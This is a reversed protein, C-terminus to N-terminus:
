RIRCCNDLEEILKKDPRTFFVGNGKPYKSNIGRLFLYYVGGLHLDYNYDAMRSNLYRHLAITYILYQLDYRHEDMATELHQQTYDEATTGLFNSKYDAIFFRNRHFFILDIFGKMMGEITHVQTTMPAIDFRSLTANFKNIDLTELPFLFSLEDLRETTTLQSLSCSGPLQVQCTENIWQSTTETWDSDIGYRILMTNICEQWSTPSQSFDILELISHLCTGATAGKPFTFPNKGEIEVPLAKTIDTTNTSPGDYKHALQSYSTILTGSKITGNFSAARLENQPTQYIVPSIATSERPHKKITIMKESTNFRKLMATIDDDSKIQYPTPHHLFRNLASHEIDKINGWCFYCCCRARTLAVYLLRVAEAKEEQEMKTLNENDTADFDAIAAFTSRDHFIIPPETNTKRGNWIFPLFVVPYELGKSKHITAIKVLQEDNELRLQENEMEPDPTNIQQELWRTLPARGNNNAPSNNLLEALHMYNTCKREGSQQATLRQILDERVFLTQLMVMIGKEQWLHRYEQLSELYRDWKLSDSRTSAINTGNLGFLDSALATSCSTTNKLNLLTQLFQLLQTAENTTFVSNRNHYVSTIGQKRLAKQMTEAEFHTRVLITIDGAQLLDEGIFAKGQTAYSLLQSIELACAEAAHPEATTKSIKKQRANAPNNEILLVNFPLTTTGEVTLSPKEKTQDPKVPHFSIDPEFLFGNPLSFLKNVAAVMPASSRYNTDMTHLSDVPTKRRAQIYTFIDAGRFSYIAQKPDGIMFLSAAQDNYITSFIDYQLPDTDQFEDVLAAPYQHSIRTVLKKGTTKQHLADALYTLLDDFYLQSQASKRQALEKTLYGGADQVIKIQLFRIYNQHTTYFQEFQQFFTHEPGTTCKKLRLSDLISQQLLAMKKPLLYPMKKQAGLSHMASILEPITETKHYGDKKSRKLCKDTMLIEEIEEAHLSWLSCVQKWLVDAQQELENLDSTHIEPQISIKQISLISALSQLLNQPDSWLSRIWQVKERPFSYFTSRWFDEIINLRLDQESEIFDIEFPIGSEFANDQLARQCFSHITFIAAEDMRILADNILQLVKGPPLHQLLPELEPTSAPNNLFRLADKLRERIRNRLEDTAARTFTVVLIEDVSLQKELILRLYLLTLTYTKGTGASAEILHTGSLPMKCPNLPQMM